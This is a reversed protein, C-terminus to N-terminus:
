MILMRLCYGAYLQLLMYFGDWIDGNVWLVRFGEVGVAYRLIQCRRMHMPLGPLSLDRHFRKRAFCHWEESGCEISHHGVPDLM